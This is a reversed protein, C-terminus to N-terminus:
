GTVDGGYQEGLWGLIRDFLEHSPPTYNRSAIGAPAHGLFHPVYRGYHEHSELIAPSTKRLYKFSLKMGLRDRLVNFNRAVNDNKHLTGDDRMRRFAWSGGSRTHLVIGERSGWRKLLDFTRPWLKYRVVPVNARDRTKSRKRTIIGSEWDVEDAHLEAIDSAV